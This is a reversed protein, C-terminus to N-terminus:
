DKPSIPLLLNIMEVFNSDIAYQLATKNNQYNRATPDAGSKLLLKATLLKNQKYNLGSWGYSYDAAAMLPTFGDRELNVNANKSVLYSVIQYNCYTNIAQTLPYSDGKGAFNVDAGSNVLQQVLKLNNKSIAFSLPTREMNGSKSLLNVNAGNDILLQIMAPNNNWVAISLATEAYTHPLYNVDGGNAIATKVMAINDSRVSKILLDDMAGAFATVSFGIMCLAFVAIRLLHRIM